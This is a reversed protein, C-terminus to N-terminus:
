RTPLCAALAARVNETHERHLFKDWGREAYLARLPDARDYFNLTGVWASDFCPALLAALRKPTCPLLPAVSATTRIGADRLQKAAKLRRSISPARPEFAKRVVDSDTPVSIGVTLTDGFRQFLDIDRVVHPSRTQIHVREPFAALLVELLARTLGLRLEIPQYPDTASSFFVTKGQLKHSERQLADVANQKIEIWHGWDAKKGADDHIFKSAYCYTCGFLCGRFPNITFDCPLSSNRNQATLVSRVEIRTILNGSAPQMDDPM